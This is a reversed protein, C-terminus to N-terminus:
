SSVRQESLWAGAGGGAGGAGAGGDGGGGHQGHWRQSTKRRKGIAM